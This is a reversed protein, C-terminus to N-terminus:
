RKGFADLIAQRHVQSGSVTPHVGDAQVFARDTGYATFPDAFSWGSRKAVISTLAARLAQADITEQTAPSYRPGQSCLTILPNRIRSAIKDTIVKLYKLWQSPSHHPGDNHGYSVWVFAEELAKIMHNARAANQAWLLSAGAVSANFVHIAPGGNRVGVQYPKANWTRCIPTIKSAGDIADSVYASYIKGFLGHQNGASDSGANSGRSGIQINQNPSFVTTTSGGTTTSGTQVWTVGDDSTYFKVVYGGSGNDADLTVRVHKRAGNAFGAWAAAGGTATLLTTGDPSWALTPTGGANIYFQYAYTGAATGYRSVFTQSTTGTVWTNPAVDARLDLDGTETGALDIDTGWGIADTSVVTVYPETGARLISPARYQNAVEDFTCYTMRVSSETNSLIFQSFLYVWEDTYDGTSDGLVLFVVDHNAALLRQMVDYYTTSRAQDAILVYQTHPDQDVEHAAFDAAAGDAVAQVDALRYEISTPETSGTVGIVGEIAEIEDALKAHLAHGEYGPANRKTGATPRNINAIASPFDAAM